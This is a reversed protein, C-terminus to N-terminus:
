NQQDAKSAVPKEPTLIQELFDQVQWRVKRRHYGLYDLMVEELFIPDTKIGDGMDEIITEYVATLDSQSFDPAWDRIQSPEIKMLIQDGEDTRAKLVYGALNESTAIHELGRIQKHFSLADTTGHLRGHLPAVRLGYDEAIREKEMRDVFVFDPDIVDLLILDAKQAIIATEREPLVMEFVMVYGLGALREAQPYFAHLLRGAQAGYDIGLARVNDIGTGVLPSGGDYVETTAYFLEGKHQYVRVNTGDIKNEIVAESDSIVGIIRREETSAFREPTYDSSPLVRPYGRVIQKGKPRFITGRLLYSMPSTLGAQHFIIPGGAGVQHFHRKPVKFFEALAPIDFQDLLDRCKRLTSAFELYM